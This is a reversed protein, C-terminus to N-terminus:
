ASDEYPADPEDAGPRGVNALRQGHLLGELFARAREHEPHRAVLAHFAPSHNPEILHALEHVLVDDLVWGPVTALRNSVRIRGTTTSCSAWRHEMRASWTVETARVGDLYLDALEHARALLQEDTATARAAVKATVKAVLGRVVEAEEAAGLLAPVRVEITGDTRMRASASKRRRSSRIVEVAPASPGPSATTDPATEFLM